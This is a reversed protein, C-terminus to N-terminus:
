PAQAAPRSANSPGSPTAGVRPTAGPARAGPRAANQINAIQFSDAMRELPLFDSKFNIDVLGSLSAKTQLAAETQSTDISMLKLVPSETWKYEGKAYYSGDRRENSYDASDKDRSRTTSESAGESKGEFKGEGTRQTLGRAYDLHTASSNKRFNDRAQFDYMVKAQIRGDTVVIRNIGMLVMTALLQQRSTALQTRAAPVLQEEITDDDLSRIPEGDVPLSQVRKVAADEDVGDKLKVRASPGEDFTGSDLSIEFLDPFQDVLHDRGQNDTTNEDRFQNLTMAVNAVLKGYAEMQKISSDVIAHFVNEILGGVFEPFDVKDLLLGAVEAGERAGQATFAGPDSTESTQAPQSSPTSQATPEAQARSLPDTESGFAYADAPMGAYRDPALRIGDPEALYTAVRVTNRAIEQQEDLPLAKFAPSSTLMERVKIRAAAVTEPTAPSGVTM